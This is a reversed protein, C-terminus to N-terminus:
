FFFFFASHIYGRGVHIRWRYLSYFHPFCWVGNLISGGVAVYLLTAKSSRVRWRQGHFYSHFVTHPKEASHRFLFFFFLSLPFFRFLVCPSFFLTLPISLPHRPHSVFTTRHTHCISQGRPEEAGTRSEGRSINSQKGEIDSWVPKGRSVKLHPPFLFVISKFTFKNQKGKKLNVRDSSFNWPKKKM